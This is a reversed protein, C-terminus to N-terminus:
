RNNNITGKGAKDWITSTHVNYTTFMFTISPFLNKLEDKFEILEDEDFACPSVPYFENPDDEFSGNQNLPTVYLVNDEVKYVSGYNESVRITKKM